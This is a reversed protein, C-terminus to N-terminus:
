GRISPYDGTVIVLFFALKLPFNSIPNQPNEQILVLVSTLSSLPDFAIGMPMTSTHISNYCSQPINIPDMNGYIAAGHIRWPILILKPSIFMWKCSNQPESPVLIQGMVAMAMQSDTLDEDGSKAEGM